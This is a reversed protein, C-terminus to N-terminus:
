FFSRFTPWFTVRFSTMFCLFVESVLSPGVGVQYFQDNQIHETAQHQHGDHLLQFLKESLLEPFNLRFYSRNNQHRSQPSWFQLQTNQGRAISELSYRALISLHRYEPIPNYIKNSNSEAHYQFTRLRIFCSTLTENQVLTKIIINLSRQSTINRTTCKKIDYFIVWLWHTQMLCLLTRSDNKPM